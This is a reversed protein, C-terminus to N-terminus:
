LATFLNVSAEECTVPKDAAQVCTGFTVKFTLVVYIILNMCSGTGTLCNSASLHLFLMNKM